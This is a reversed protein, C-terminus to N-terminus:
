EIMGEDDSVNQHHNYDVAKEIDYGFLEPNQYLGRMDSDKAIEVEISKTKAYADKRIGTVQWSVEMFPKGGSITFENDKIKQGIFLDPMSSGIPTLQYRFNENLSEFYPPLEVTAEGNADLEVMGDYVNKMEPSSVDSHMLYMNEPDQPHDIKYGGGAKTNSGTSHLNGYFYGGYNATSQVVSAYVGYKSTASSAYGYLGYAEDGDFAYGYIGYSSGTDSGNDNAYGYVGIRYYNSYARGSIASAFENDLGVNSYVGYLSGDQLNEMNIRLGYRSDDSSYIRNINVTGTDNIELRNENKLVGDDNYVQTIKLGSSAEEEIRWRYFNDRTLALDNDRINLDGGSVNLGSQFFNENNTFYNAGSHTAATNQIKDPSIEANANIDENVITGNYIHDSFVENIGIDEYMISHDQIHGDHIINYALKPETVANDALKSTTISGDTISMATDSRLSQLAYPSSTLRVRPSIEADGGVTIGLYRTSGGSFLDHPLPVTSGLQYNFLGGTVAVPQFPTYWLSDKGAASGYIKFKIFYTDDDVSTGDTNTLRGQYNIVNPVEATVMSCVLLLGVVLTPLRLM